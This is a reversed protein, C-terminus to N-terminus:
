CTACRLQGFINRKENRTVKGSEPTVPNNVQLVTIPFAPLQPSSPTWIPPTDPTHSLGGSRRDNDSVVPGPFTPDAVTKAVEACSSGSDRDLPMHRELVEDEDLEKIPSLIAKRGLLNSDNGETKLALTLL